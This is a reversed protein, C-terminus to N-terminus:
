HKQASSVDASSQVDRFQLFHHLSVPVPLQQLITTKMLSASGLLKRISSRCLHFLSPVSDFLPLPVWTQETRRRDLVLRLDPGLGSWDLNQLLLNLVPGPAESCTRQDMLTNPELGANLLLPIWMLGTQTQGVAEELLAQVEQESLFRRSGVGPSLGPGPGPGPGLSVQCHPSLGPFTRFDLILQLLDPQDSKLVLAWTERLVSAGASLLIRVSDLGRRHDTLTLSVAQTLPSKLGLLEECDQADPSFGERLLLQLAGRQDSQVCLYLPSVQGPAHGISRDTLPILKQLIGTHGFQAAAHLPLQNWEASCSLNPDAGHCLLESVCAEHGEQSALFLPSAGDSAQSDVCAGAAILIRLCRSRGYQASVFLATIGHDDKSELDCVSVLLEVIDSHGKYVAQHLCTWCSATHSRNVEAGKLLLLQVVETHGRDVATYLPSSLDNTQLNVHARARLLLKVVSLRGNQAALFLPTEGEHTQVDVFSQFDLSSSSAAARLIERVCGKHGQAASEHLCTWGRNDKVDLSLGSQVLDRVRVLSGSRAAASISGVSDSYVESFDM